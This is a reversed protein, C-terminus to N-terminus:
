IKIGSGGINSVNHSRLADVLGIGTRINPSKLTTMNKQNAGLASVVDGSSRFQTSNSRTKQGITYGADLGYAKDNGSAIYNAIAGGLSHGVASSQM